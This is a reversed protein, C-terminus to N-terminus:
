ESKLRLESIRLLTHHSQNTVFKTDGSKKWHKRTVPTAETHEICVAKIDFYDPLVYPNGKLIWASSGIERVRELQIIDGIALDGMRQTVIIDNKSVQFPKSKIEVTAFLEKTKQLEALTKQTENKIVTAFLRRFM